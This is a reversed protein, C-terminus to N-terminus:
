CSLHAKRMPSPSRARSRNAGRRGGAARLRRVGRGLGRAHHRRPVEIAVASQRLCGRHPYFIAFSFDDADPYGTSRPCCIRRADGGIKTTQSSCGMTPRLGVAHGDTRVAYFHPFTEVAATGFKKGVPYACSVVVNIEIDEDGHRLKVIERYYGTRIRKTLDATKLDIKAPDRNGFVGHGALWVGAGIVLVSAAILIGRM